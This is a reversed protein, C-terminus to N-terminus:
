MNLTRALNYWDLRGLLAMIKEEFNVAALYHGNGM